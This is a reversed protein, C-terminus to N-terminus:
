LSSAKVHLLLCLTSLRFSFSQPLLGESETESKCAWEDYLSSDVARPGAKSAKGGIYEEGSSSRTPNAPTSAAPDARASAFSYHCYCYYYYHQYYNHLVSSSAPPSLWSSLFAPRTFLTLPNALSRFGPIGLSTPTCTFASYKIPQWFCDRYDATPKNASGMCVPEDWLRADICTHAYIYICRLTCLALIDWGERGRRERERGGKIREVGNASRM